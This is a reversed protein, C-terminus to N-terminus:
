CAPRLDVRDVDATTELRIEEYLQRHWRRAADVNMDLLTILSQGPKLLHVPCGHLLQPKIGIEDYDYPYIRCVLPRVEWPLRCGSPGLMTCDGGHRRKLVRRMGDPQFVYHQWAPDDDQAAYDSDSPERYEYFDSRELHEAIRDVDGPTVYVESWQCCTRGLCSCRVCLHEDEM